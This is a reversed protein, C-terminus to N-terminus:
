VRVCVAPDRVHACINVCAIACSPTRVGYSLRCPIVRPSFDRAVGPFPVQTLPTGTWHDVLQAVDGGLFDSSFLDLPLGRCGSLFLLGNTFVVIVVVVVFM